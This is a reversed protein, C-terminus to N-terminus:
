LTLRKRSEQSRRKNDNVGDHQLIESNKSCCDIKACVMKNRGQVVILPFKSVKEGQMNDGHRNKTTKEQVQMSEQGLIKAMAM